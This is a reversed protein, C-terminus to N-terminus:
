LCGNGQLFSDSICDNSFRMVMIISPYSLHNGSIQLIISIAFAEISTFLQFPRKVKFFTFITKYVPHEQFCHKKKQAYVISFVGGKQIICFTHCPYANSEHICVLLPCDLYGKAMPFCKIHGGLHLTRMWKKPYFELINTFTSDKLAIAAVADITKCLIHYCLAPCLKM